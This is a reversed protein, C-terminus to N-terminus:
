PFGFVLLLSIGFYWRKMRKPTPYEESGPCRGQGKKIYGKSEYFGITTASVLSAGFRTTKEYHRKGPILDGVDAQVLSLDENERDLEMADKQ